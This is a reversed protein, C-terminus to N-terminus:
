RKFEDRCKTLEDNTFINPVIGSNLM